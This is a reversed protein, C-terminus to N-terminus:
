TTASTVTSSSIAAATAAAAGLPAPEVDQEGVGPPGHVHPGDGSGVEVLHSGRDVQVQDPRERDM